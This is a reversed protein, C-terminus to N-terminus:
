KYYGTITEYIKFTKYILSTLCSIVECKTFMVQSGLLTSLTKIVNNLLFTQYHGQLPRFM